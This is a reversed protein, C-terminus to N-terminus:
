QNPYENLPLDKHTKQETLDELEIKCKTDDHSIRRIIGQYVMQTMKSSYIVNGNSDTDVVAGIGLTTASVSSTGAYAEYMSNGGWNHPSDSLGFITSFMKASPSVFQISVKWNILSTDSLIDTFRVGEYEINSINLSVSSIKLRRSEIDISEKISPINLLLPKFYKNKVLGDDDASATETYYLTHIHDLSVNNTSLLICRNLDDRWNNGEEVTDPPEITVIPYLQTNKGQIDDQFSM